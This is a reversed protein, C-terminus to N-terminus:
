TSIAQVGSNNPVTACDNRISSPLRFFDFYLEVEYLSAGM